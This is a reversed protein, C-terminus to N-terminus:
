LSRAIGASQPIQDRYKDLKALTGGRASASAQPAYTHWLRVDSREHESKEGTPGIPASQHNGAAAATFKM